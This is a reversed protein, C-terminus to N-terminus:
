RLSRPLGHGLSIPPPKRKVPRPMLGYLSALRLLLWRVYSM